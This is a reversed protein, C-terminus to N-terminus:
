NYQMSYTLYTNVSGAGVAGITSPNLYQAVYNLTASNGLITAAPQNSGSLVTVGNTVPTNIALDIKQNNAPNVLRVQVAAATGTINKLAGTANDLAPTSSTEVWLAATKGNTCDTGGGLILQFPSDGATSGAADLAAKGVTPMTVTINGTGAAAGGGTITCTADTIEGEFKITGDTASAHQPALAAVGFATALIASLATKKM